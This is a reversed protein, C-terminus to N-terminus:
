QCRSDEQRHAQKKDAAQETSAEVLHDGHAIEQRKQETAHPAIEHHRHHFVEAVFLLVSFDGGPGLLVSLFFGGDVPRRIKM